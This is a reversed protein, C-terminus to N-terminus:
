LWPLTEPLEGTYTEPLVLSLTTIDGQNNTRSRSVSKILFNTKKYIMLSPALLTIIDGARYILNNIDRWGKVNIDIRLGEAYMRGAKAKADPEIDLSEPDTAKFVFPRFKDVFPNKITSKEPLDGPKISSLATVSSFIKQASYRPSSSLFPEDNDTILVKPTQKLNAQRILLNGSIDNSIIFGRQKALKIIFNLIPEQPDLAVLEFNIKETVESVINVGFPAALSRAIERLKLNEFELPYNSPSSFCDSLVGPKSYGSINIIRRSEDVSPNINVVTGDIIKEGGLYIACDKYTLPIFTNKFIDQNPEFPASLSFRDISDFSEFVSVKTWFRFKQNDVLLTVESINEAEIKDPARM